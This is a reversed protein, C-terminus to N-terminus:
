AVRLHQSGRHDAAGAGRGGGGGRVGDPWGQVPDGGPDPGPPRVRGAGPGLRPPALRAVEETSTLVQTERENTHERTAADAAAKEASERPRATEVESFELLAEEGKLARDEHEEEAAEKHPQEVEEKLPAREEHEEAVRLQHLSQSQELGSQVLTDTEGTPKRTTRMSKATADNKPMHM